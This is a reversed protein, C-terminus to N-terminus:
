KTSPQGVIIFGSGVKFMSGGGFTLNKKIKVLKIERITKAANIKKINNLHM